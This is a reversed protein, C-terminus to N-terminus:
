PGGGHVGAPQLWLRITAAVRQGAALVEHENSDNSSGRVDVRRTAARTGCMVGLTRCSAVQSYLWLCSGSAASIALLNEFVTQSETTIGMHNFRQTFLLARQGCSGLGRLPHVASMSRTLGSHGPPRGKVGGGEQPGRSDLERTWFGRVRSPVGWAEPACPRVKASRQRPGMRDPWAAFLRVQITTRSSLQGPRRECREDRTNESRAHTYTQRLLTRRAPRRNTAIATTPVYAVRVRRRTSTVALDRDAAAQWRARNVSRRPLSPPTAARVPTVPPLM